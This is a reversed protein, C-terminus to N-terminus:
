SVILCAIDTMNLVNRAVSGLLGGRPGLGRHGLVILSVAQEDAYEVIKSAPDGVVFLASAAQLNAKALKDKADELIIEASDQMIEMRSEQVEGAEIMEIIEKPLAWNRIVHLLHIESGHIPALEIVAELAHSSYSSGDLTLLIKEFM